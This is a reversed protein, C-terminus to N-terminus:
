YPPNTVVLAEISGAGGSGGNTVVVKIREDKLPIFESPTTSAAGDAVSNAFDRPKWFVISTGANTITMIPTGNTEATIVLDAGTDITGPTYKLQILFGNLSGNVGPAIYVTANGSADTVIEAKGSSFM